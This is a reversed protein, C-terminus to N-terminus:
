AEVHLGPWSPRAARDGRRTSPRVLRRNRLLARRVLFALRLRLSACQDPLSENACLQRRERLAHCFQTENQTSGIASTVNSALLKSYTEASSPVRGGHQRLPDLWSPSSFAVAPAVPYSRSSTSSATVFALAAGLRRCTAACDNVAHHLCTRNCRCRM